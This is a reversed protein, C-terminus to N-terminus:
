GIAEAIAAAKEMDREAYVADTIVASSHDLARELEHTELKERAITFGQIEQLNLNYLNEM